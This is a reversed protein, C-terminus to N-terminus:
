WDSILGAIKIKQQAMAWIQYKISNWNLDKLSPIKCSNQLKQIAIELVPTKKEKVSTLILPMLATKKSTNWTRRPATAAFFPLAM